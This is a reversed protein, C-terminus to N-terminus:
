RSIAILPDAVDFHAATRPVRAIDAIMREPATLAGFDRPDLTQHKENLRFAVLLRKKL